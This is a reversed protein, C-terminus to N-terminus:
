LSEFGNGKADVKLLNDSQCSSYQKIDRREFTILNTQM